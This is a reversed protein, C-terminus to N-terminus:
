VGAKGIIKGITACEHGCFLVDKTDKNCLLCNTNGKIVTPITVSNIQIKINNYRELFSSRCSNCIKRRHSKAVLPINIGCLKCNIKLKNAHHERQYKRRSSLVVKCRGSCYKQTLINPKFELLCGACRLKIKYDSRRCSMCYYRKSPSKYRKSENIFFVNDCEINLCEIQM